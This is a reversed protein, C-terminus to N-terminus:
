RVVAQMDAEIGAIQREIRRRQVLDNTEGLQRIAAAHDEALAALRRAIGDAIISLVSPSPGPSAGPASPRNVAAIPRGTPPSRYAQEVKWCVQAIAADQEGPSMAALPRRADLVAQYPELATAKWLCDHVPVWLLTLEGRRAAEDFAPLERDAIFDSALAAPSALVLAVRTSRVAEEIAPLWLDGPKIQQDDWAKVTGNRLLPALTTQIRVRWPDDTRSYCIFVLGRNSEM